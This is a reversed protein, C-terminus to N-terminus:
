GMVEVKTVKCETKTPLPITGGPNATYFDLYGDMRLTAERKVTKGADVLAAGLLLESTKFLKFTIDQGEVSGSCEFDVFMDKPNKNTLEIVLTAGEPWPKTEKIVLEPPIAASDDATATVTMSSAALSAVLAIQILNFRPM